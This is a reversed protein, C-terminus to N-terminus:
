ESFKVVAPKSGIDVTTEVAVTRREPPVFIGVLHKGTTTPMM